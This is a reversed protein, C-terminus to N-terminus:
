SAAAASGEANPPAPPAAGASRPRRSPPRHSGQQSAAIRTLIPKQREAIIESQFSHDRHTFLFDINGGQEAFHHEALLLHLLTQGGLRILRPLLRQGLPRCQITGYGTLDGVGHLVPCQFLARGVEGVPELGHGAKGGFFVVAEDGAVALVAHDHLQAGLLQILALRVGGGEGGAAEAGGELGTAVGSPIGRGVSKDLILRQIDGRYEARVASLRQILFRRQQAGHTLQVSGADTDQPQEAVGPGLVDRGLDARLLLVEEDVLLHVFPTLVQLQAASRQEACLGGLPLLQVVM